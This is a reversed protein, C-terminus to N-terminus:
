SWTGNQNRRKETARAKAHLSTHEAATMVQLNSPDNNSRNGDIHHVHEDPELPRGLMQEAIVRHQSRGKNPGRTIEIYGNPKLSLGTANKEGYSLKAISIREKHQDTFIRRKGRMGSGIRGEAAAARIGDTRSRLKGARMVHYRVTSRHLGIMGEIEPISFGFLYLDVIQEPVTRSM